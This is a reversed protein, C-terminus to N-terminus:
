WSLLFATKLADDSNYLLSLLTFNDNKEFVKTQSPFGSCQPWVPMGLSHATQSGNGWTWGGLGKLGESPEAHDVPGM